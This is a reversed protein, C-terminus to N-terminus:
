SRRGFPLNRRFADPTTGTHHRFFKVLNTPEDFGTRDALEKVSVDTHALLRKQELVVREDIVLKTSKGTHDVLLEALRRPSVGAAKAYHAVSRTKTCDQELTTFFRALAPPLTPRADSALAVREARLLFARLLSSMLAPQFGDLPRAQEAALQDALALLEIRDGAPLKLAPTAWGPDLVSAGRLPDVSRADLAIFEPAALLMWADVGSEPLFHQVRGRAVVTLTNAGLPVKSFDVVLSGAGRLGLYVIHFEPRQPAELEHPLVRAFLESMRFIEFGLGPRTNHRFPLDPIAARRM